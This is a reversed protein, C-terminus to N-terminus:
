HRTLAPAGFSGDLQLSIGHPRLTSTGHCAACSRGALRMARRRDVGRDLPARGSMARRLNAASNMASTSSSTSCTRCSRVAQAKAAGYAAHTGHYDLHDRTLNTFAATHFRVGDCGGRISRTRPCKWPWMACAPAACSRWSATCPSWTLRPIRRSTLATPRGWGITGIYAAHRDWSNWASRWCTPAPPRATPAPSAPSACTRRRGASSAIPSAASWHALRAGAGRVRGGASRPPAADPARIGCCWARAARRRTPRSSCAMCRRGRLAFFLSGARVERSDLTLDAVRADNAPLQRSAM